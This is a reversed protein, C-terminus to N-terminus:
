RYMVGHLVGESACSLPNRGAVEILFEGSHSGAGASKFPVPQVMSFWSFLDHVVEHGTERIKILGSWNHHTFIPAIEIADPLTISIAWSEGRLHTASVHAAPSADGKYIIQANDHSIFRFSDKRYDFPAIRRRSIPESIKKAAIFFDYGYEPYERGIQAVRIRFGADEVLAIWHDPGLFYPHEPNEEWGFPVAMLLNGGQKIVRNLEYFTSDLNFSHEVCHSSFVVDFASDPFDLKDNFGVSFQNQRFGMSAALQRSSDVAAPDVDIYYYDIEKEQLYQLLTVNLNGGGVDLVRAGSDIFRGGEKWRQLYARHRSDIYASVDGERSKVSEYWNATMNAQREAFTKRDM